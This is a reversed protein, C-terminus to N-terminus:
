RVRVGHPGITEHGLRHAAQGVARAAPAAKHRSSQAKIKTGDLAVQNLRIMGMGMAVRGVQRFLDKLPGEFDTRFNCFTSHDIRRGGALWMFDLANGCAWELRRSSRMGQSLGYLLVSAMVQPHIAPQGFGIYYNEWSDWDMASLIEDFLRVPHDASVMSDLTPNFLLIQTRDMTATAWRTM